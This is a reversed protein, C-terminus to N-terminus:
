SGGGVTVSDPLLTEIDQLLRTESFPKKLLKWNDQFDMKKPIKEIFGTIIIIPIQPCLKKVEQMLDLGPLGPIQLDTVLLDVPTETNQYFIFSRLGKFGTNATSVQYDRSTLIFEMPRLLNIEDEVILIHHKKLDM